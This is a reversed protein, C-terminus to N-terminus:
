STLYNALLIFPIHKMVEPTLHDSHKQLAKKIKGVDFYIGSAHLGVQNLARGSQVTGVKVRNGDSLENWRDMQRSFYKDEEFSSNEEGTPKGRRSYQ